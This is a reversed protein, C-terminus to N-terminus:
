ELIVLGTEDNEINFCITRANGKVINSLFPLSLAYYRRVPLFLGAMYLIMSTSPVMSLSIAFLNCLFSFFMAAIFSAPDSSPSKM